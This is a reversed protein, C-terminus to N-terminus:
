LLHARQHDRQLRGLALMAMLQVENHAVDYHIAQAHGHAKQGSELPHEFEAPAGEATMSDIRKSAFLVTAKDASLHGEPIFVQM